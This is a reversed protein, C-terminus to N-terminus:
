GSEAQRRMKQQSGLTRAVLKCGNVQDGSGLRERNAGLSTELHEVRVVDDGAGRAVRPSEGGHASLEETDLM